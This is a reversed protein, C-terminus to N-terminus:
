RGMNENHSWNKNYFENQARQREISKDHIISFDVELPLEAVTSAGVISEHLRKTWHIVPDNRYIRSQRDGNHWNIVPIGLFEPLYSVHWGWKRADEMTMGHLLNVRPVRYLDVEPNAEILEHINKALGDSLYEDADLQVIYDGVCKRSGFTKHAGFDGELNHRIVNTRPLAALEDFIALTVPDTSFDDLIVMEDQNGEKQLFSGIQDVVKSLISGENHSSILFSIKM